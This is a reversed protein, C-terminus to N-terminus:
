PYAEKRERKEQREKDAEYDRRESTHSHTKLVRMKSEHERTRPIPTEGFKNYKHMYPEDSHALTITDGQIVRFSRYNGPCLYQSRIRIVQSAYRLRSVLPKLALCSGLSMKGDHQLPIFSSDEIEFCGM